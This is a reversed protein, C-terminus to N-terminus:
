SRAAAPLDVFFTTGRGVESEYWIRGSMREIMAKAIALGLGTGDKQRSDSSDAQAFKGFISGRFEDPIGRGRDSVALRVRGDAAYAAVTVEVGRPSFKAANSLLNTVVQMLRDPDAAAYAGSPVDALAFRVGHRDAYAANLALARALFAAVEVPEIRFETRGSELRELDLIDNVLATLRESNEYAIGVFEHATAPLEGTEGAHVLALSGVIATLPTRLEHSVTAVFEEKLQEVRKRETIDANTGTVRHARGAADRDTVRASSQIWCWDGTMTRVRHEAQYSLITGKLLAAVQAAVGPADDPHVLRQLADVSIRVPRVEDGIMAAWEASLLVEGTDVNWDFFALNSSRLALTLREESARLRERTRIRETLDRTVNSFGVLEGAPNRLATLVVTAWIRQGDGRVRWGEDEAHGEARARELDREPKGAAADEPPYFISIHQDVVEEARYGKTREAGANWSAVRGQPDVMFIAYDQVGAVLLRFREESERMDRTIRNAFGLAAARLTLLLWVVMVVTAGVLLGAILVFRPRESDVAAEFPPLSAMDVHWARGAVELKATATFQPAVGGRLAAALAANDFLPVAGDRVRLEVALPTRVVDAVRIAGVVHGRLADRREAATGAPAGNRYVPLVMLVGPQPARGDDSELEVRATIVAQGSDRARELAERAVPEAALDRGVERLNRGAPPEVYAIPAYEAQDGEPFVRYDRLGEAQRERVHAALAPAPVRPAFAVAQIGPYATGIDLVRVYRQWEGQDVRETAAVLGKAGRLLQVFEQMRARVSAGFVAVESEFRQRAQEQADTRAANWASLALALALVSTAALAVPHARPSPRRRLLRRAVRSSRSRSEEM